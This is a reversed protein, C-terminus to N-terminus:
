GPGSRRRYEKMERYERCNRVYTHAAFRIMEREKDDLERLARAPRGIAFHGPPIETGPTVLSGAGILVDSGIKAGDMICSQMGVLIRDGLHCAHLIAGHGVSVDDGIRVDLGGNTVHLACLDQINTRAGITVPELDGRLVAGFWISSEPGITVAGVLDAVKPQLHLYHFIPM